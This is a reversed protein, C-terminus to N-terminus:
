EDTTDSSVLSERAAKREEASVKGDKNSDLKAFQANSGATFEAQSLAGDGNTDMAKFKDAQSMRHHEGMGGHEAADKREGMAMKDGRKERMANQADQMEQSSISGDKNADMKTFQKQAAAAHEASSIQGDHDTDVKSLHDGKDHAADGASAPVGLILGGMALLSGVMRLTNTKM